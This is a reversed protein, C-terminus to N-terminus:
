FRTTQIDFIPNNIKYVDPSRASGMFTKAIKRQHLIQCSEVIFMIVVFGGILVSIIFLVMLNMTDSSCTSQSCQLLPLDEVSEIETLTLDTCYNFILLKTEEFLSLPLNSANVENSLHNELAKEILEIHSDNEGKSVESEHNRQFNDVYVALNGFSFLQHVIESSHYALTEKWCPYNTSCDTRCSLIDCQYQSVASVIVLFLFIIHM